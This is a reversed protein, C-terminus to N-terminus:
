FRFVASLTVPVTFHGAEEDNLGRLAYAVQGAFSTSGSFANFDRDNQDLGSEWRVGADIRVAFHCTVDYEVGFLATATAVVGGDYFAGEYITGSPFNLGEVRLGINDVSAAGAAISVFPRLKEQKTFFFYRLGLEGGFSEYDGWRLEFRSGFNPIANEEVVSNSDARQYRFGGFLEIHDNLVYGIEGRINWGIEYVDGWDRSDVIVEDGFAFDRVGSSFNGFQLDASGGISVYWRPDCVPPPPMVVKDKPEIAEPGAFSSTSFGGAFLFASAVLISLRGITSM